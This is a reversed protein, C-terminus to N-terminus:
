VHSWAKRNVIDSVRGDAIGFRDALEQQTVRCLAYNARIDRVDQETLKASRHREGLARPQRGKSVMDAINEENTGEFLHADNVCARNDCHHLACPEPWRGHALFFAVRHARRTTGRFWFQGYGWRDLGATWLHCADKGGSRDVKSEFREGDRGRIM